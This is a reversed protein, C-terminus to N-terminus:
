EFTESALTQEMGGFFSAFKSLKASDEQSDIMAVFETEFRHYQVAMTNLTSAYCDSLM